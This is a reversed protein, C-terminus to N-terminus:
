LLRYTLGFGLYEKVQLRQGYIETGDEAEGVVIDVDDDYVMDLTFSVTFISSIDYSISTNWDIDINQPNDIYNSFFEITSSGSIKDKYSYKSSIEVSGGIENRCRKGEDFSYNDPDVKVTDRIFTLKYSLPSAQLSLIKNGNKTIKYDIGASLTYYAPSLFTSIPDSYNEDDYDYGNFFQSKFETSLAYYWNNVANLSLQSNIDLLDLNKVLPRDEQQMYGLRLDIDNEWCMKGDKTTYDANTLLRGSLTVSNTGGSAWYSYATQTATITAIVNIDWPNYIYEQTEIKEPGSIASRPPRLREIDIDTFHIHPREKISPPEPMQRWTRTVLEPKTQAIYTQLEFLIDNADNDFTGKEKFGEKYHMLNPAHSKPFVINDYVFPNIKEYNGPQLRYPNNNIHKDVEVLAEFYTELLEEYSPIIFSEASTRDFHWTTDQNIMSTDNAQYLTDINQARLM